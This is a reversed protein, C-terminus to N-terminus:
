RSEYQELFNIETAHGAARYTCIGYGLGFPGEYSLAQAQVGTGDFAGGLITFSRHGCEAAKECFDEPFDLLEGFDGRGMVDM